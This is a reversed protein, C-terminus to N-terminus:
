YYYWVTIIIIIITIFIIDSGGFLMGRVPSWCAFSLAKAGLLLCLFRILTGYGM